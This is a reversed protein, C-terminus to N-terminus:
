FVLSYEDISWPWHLSCIYFKATKIIKSNPYLMWLTGAMAFAITTHSSPWGWFVGGKLFGFQFNRTIDETITLLPSPHSRGTFAKYASSILSGLIASQGLAYGTTVMKAKRLIKGVAVFGLPILIPFLGGIIVAPFLILYTRTDHFYQFYQWDFGSVVIFYTIVIAFLHWFLNKGSFIRVINRGIKHFLTKM